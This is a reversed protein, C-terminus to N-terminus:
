VIQMLNLVPYGKEFNLDVGYLPTFPKVGYIVLSGDANKIKLHYDVVSLWQDRLKSDTSAIAINLGETDRMNAGLETLGPVSLEDRGYVQVAKDVNIDLMRHPSIKALEDWALAFTKVDDSLNSKMVLRWKKPALSQNYELIRVREDIADWGVYKSLSEAVTDSSYAATPVIVCPGKQNIFNARMMNLVTRIELPSVSSDVDILLFAGRPISGGLMEDMDSSGLSFGGAPHPVPELPKPPFNTRPQRLGNPLITFRAKDLSFIGRKTPVSFGRLKNMAITRVRRGDLESQDLTVIGDVLYGLDGAKRSDEVVIVVSVKSEDLESLVASELMKRGEDNTNRIAGEWSDVVLVARQKSHKLRLVQNFITDPEVRRLDHLEDIWSARATRGSMTDIVEDIWPFHQRLRAPAVRSSAYIKHTEDLTNLIELAFTTKGSGPPGQVLLVQGPTQLFKLILTFMVPDVRSDLQAATQEIASEHQIPSQVAAM